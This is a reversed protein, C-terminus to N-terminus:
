WKGIPCKQSRWATKIPMYCGCKMCKQSSPVFFECSKCIELRKNKEKKSVAENGHLISSLEQVSSVALNSVMKVISPMTEHKKDLLKTLEQADENCGFKQWKNNPCSACGDFFNVSCSCDRCKLKRYIIVEEPIQFNEM